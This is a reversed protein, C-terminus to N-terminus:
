GETESDMALFQSISVSVSTTQRRAAHGSRRAHAGDESGRGPSRSDERRAKRKKRENDRTSKMYQQVIKRMVWDNRFHRM